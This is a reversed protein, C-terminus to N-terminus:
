VYQCKEPFVPVFPFTTNRQCLTAGNFNKRDLTQNSDCNEIAVLIESGFLAFKAITTRTTESYLCKIIVISFHISFHPRSLSYLSHLILTSSNEQEKRRRKKKKRGKQKWRISSSLYTDCSLLWTFQSFNKKRKNRRRRRKRRKIRKVEIM